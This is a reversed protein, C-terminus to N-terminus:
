ITVPIPDAPILNAVSIHPWGLPGFNLNVHQTYQVQTFSVDETGGPYTDTATFTFSPVLGDAATDTGPLTVSEGPNLAPVTIRDTVTEIWFIASMAVADANPGNATGKLFAINDTGGGVLAANPRGGPLPNVADTQITIVITSTIANDLLQQHIRDTLVTNPDQLMTKTIRTSSLDQPLRFTANNDFTQSPFPVPGSKPPLFFPTIDVPDIKPTQVTFSVGQAEITTGHPISAMRVVTAGEAPDTTAPVSLWIGPEFHIDVPRSPDTIDKVRQIYPVGNFFVDDQLFGRNPVSGLASSFELIEETVNLELINDDIPNTAPDPTVPLGSPTGPKHPRFITNFGNGRFTTNALLALPGLSPNVTPQAAQAAAATAQPPVEAWNFDRTLDGTRPTPPVATTM